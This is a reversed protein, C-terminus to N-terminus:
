IGSVFRPWLEVHTIEFPEICPSEHGLSLYFLWKSYFYNFLLEKFDLSFWTAVVYESFFVHFVVGILVPQHNPVHKYTGNIEMEYIPHWGEWQSEYKELHNNCWWGTIIWLALLSSSLIHCHNKQGIIIIILRHNFCTVRQYNLM